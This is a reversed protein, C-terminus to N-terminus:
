LYLFTNYQLKMDTTLKGPVYTKFYEKKNNLFQREEDSISTTAPVLLLLTSKGNLTSDNNTRQGVLDQVTNFVNIYSFGSADSVIFIIIYNSLRRLM